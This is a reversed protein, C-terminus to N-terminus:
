IKYSHCVQATWYGGLVLMGIVVLIWFFRGFNTQYSFFIYIIGQITSYDSYDEIIDYPGDFNEEESKEDQSKEDWAAGVNKLFRKSFHAKKICSFPVSLSFFPM